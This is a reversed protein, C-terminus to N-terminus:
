RGGIPLQGGWIPGTTDPNAGVRMELTVRVRFKEKCGRKAIEEGWGWDQLGAM